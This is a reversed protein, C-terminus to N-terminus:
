GGCPWTGLSMFNNGEECEQLANPEDALLLIGSGWQERTIEIWASYRGEGPSMSGFGGRSLESGDGGLVLIDADEALLLGANEVSFSFLIRDQDCTLTCLDFGGFRIDPQWHSPGLESGGARFNNWSMWNNEQGAPISGDNEVNTIHYAYQNWIPRAPVWSSDADGIVTIGTWGSFAYNNSAVIIETSGDNDVDAILPYEMLTGSAHGGQEMLVTGDRGDFIWLTHEDSYVVESVGDGEFDFVSSGTQSSSYDSVVNSWMLTGDTDFVSYRSLDAVGIEPLGDGDFDAVTPAGGNGGGPLPHQWVLDGANSFLGVSSSFVRAQDPLGDLDFDGVASPGDAAGLEILLSGDHRYVSRGAVLDLLGDDDWDVAFSMYHSGGGGGTGVWLPTGDHAFAQRGFLVEAKGDGDLDAMSPCGYTNTESGAAWKLTGDVGNVCVVAQQVGAACVEPLGDADIDGIAVGSSSFIESASTGLISWLQGSGDGSIATLTGAASYASGSFATFVVDPVDAEDVIGDGNDDNLNAVAPASMIQNYAPFDPNETWQWEISPNFTGVLPEQMCEEQPTFAYDGPPEWGECTTPEEPEEYPVAEIETEGEDVASPKGAENLNYDSCALALLLL